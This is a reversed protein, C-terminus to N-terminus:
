DLRNSVEQLHTSECKSWRTWPFKCEQSVCEPPVHTVIAGGEPCEQYVKGQKM